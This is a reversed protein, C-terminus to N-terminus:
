PKDGQMISPTPDDVVTVTGVTVEVGPAVKVVSERVAPDRVAELVERTTVGDQVWRSTVIWGAPSTGYVRYQLVAWEKPSLRALLGEISPLYARRIVSNFKDDDGVAQGEMKRHARLHDAFAQLGKDYADRDVGPPYFRWPEHIFNKTGKIEDDM